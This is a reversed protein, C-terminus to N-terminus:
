SCFCCGRCCCRSGHYSSQAVIGYMFMLSYIRCPLNETMSQICVNYVYLCIYCFKHIKYSIHATHVVIPYWSMNSRRKKNYIFTSCFIHFVTTIHYLIGFINNDVYSGNGVDRIMMMSNLRSSDDDGSDSDNWKLIIRMIKKKVHFAITSTWNKEM